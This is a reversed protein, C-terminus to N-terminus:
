TGGESRGSAGAELCRPAAAPSDAERLSPKEREMESEGEKSFKLLAHPFSGQRGGERFGKLQKLCRPFM